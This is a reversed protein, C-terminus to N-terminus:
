GSVPLSARPASGAQCDGRGTLWSPVPGAAAKSTCSRAGPTAPGPMTPSGSCAPEPYAALEEPLVDTM